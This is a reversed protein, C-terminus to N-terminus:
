AGEYQGSLHRVADAPELNFLARGATTWRRARLHFVATACRLNGVAPLDEMDSGPIAEFSITVPVFATLERTQRDRVLILEEGFDCAKWTLGRPKGTASAADFFLRQLEGRQSEFAARAEDPVVPRPRVLRRVLWSLATIVAVVVAAYAISEM